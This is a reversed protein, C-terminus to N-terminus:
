LIHKEEKHLYQTTNTHTTITTSRHKNNSTTCIKLLNPHLTITKYLKM